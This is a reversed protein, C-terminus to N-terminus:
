RLFQQAAAALGAAEKAQFAPSRLLAAERRNRMNGAELMVAPVKSLNLGAIDRRPTIGTGRGLYTSRPLKTARAYRDRTLTALRASQSTTNRGGAMAVSRIVHFGRASSAAGDAHISIVLDAKARNGIAAREDVCPGVGRDNPRTLVVTAGRKRLVDTLRKGVAWNHAHEAYGSNTATGATNCAKRGGRGDPVPRANVRANVTGNHGPDVVIVRGSLPGRRTPALRVGGSSPVAHPNLRAAPAPATSVSRAELTSLATATALTFPVAPIAPAPVAMSLAIGWSATSLALIGPTFPM